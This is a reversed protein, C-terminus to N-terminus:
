TPRLSLGSAKPILFFRRGKGSDFWLEEAAWSAAWDSHEEVGPRSNFLSLCLNQWCESTHIWLCSSVKWPISVWFKGFSFTVIHCHKLFWSNSLKDFQSEHILLSM